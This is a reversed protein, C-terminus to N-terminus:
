ALSSKTPSRCRFTHLMSKAFCKSRTKILSVVAGVMYLFIQRGFAHILIFRVITRMLRSSALRRRSTGASASLLIFSIHSKM